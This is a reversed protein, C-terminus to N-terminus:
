RQGSPSIQKVDFSSTEGDPVGAGRGRGRERWAASKRTWIGGEKALGDSPVIADFPLMGEGPELMAPQPLESSDLPAVVPKLALVVCLCSAVRVSCAPAACTIM